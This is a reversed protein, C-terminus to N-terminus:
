LLPLQPYDTHGFLIYHKRYENGLKLLDNLLGDSKAIHGALKGIAKNRKKNDKRVGRLFIGKFYEGPKVILNGVVALLFSFDLAVAKFDDYSSLTHFEESEIVRDITSKYHWCEERVQCEYKKKSYVVELANIYRKFITSTERDDWVAERHGWTYKEFRGLRRLGEKSSIGLIECGKESSLINPLTVYINFMPTASFFYDEETTRRVRTLYLDLPIESEERISVSIEPVPCDTGLATIVTLLNRRNESMDALGKAALPNIRLPSLM